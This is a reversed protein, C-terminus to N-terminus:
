ATHQMPMDEWALPAMNAINSALPRHAASPGLVVSSLETHNNGSADLVDYEHESSLLNRLFSQRPLHATRLGQLPNDCHNSPLPLLIAPRAAAVSANRRGTSRGAQWRRGVAVAVALVVAAAVGSIAAMTVATTGDSEANM